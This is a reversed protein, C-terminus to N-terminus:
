RAGGEVPTIGGPGYWDRDAIVAEARTAVMKRYAADIRDHTARDRPDNAVVHLLPNPGLVADVLERLAETYRIRAGTERESDPAYGAGPTRATTIVTRHEQMM